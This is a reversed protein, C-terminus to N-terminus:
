QVESRKAIAKILGRFVLTHVPYLLYWYLFGSFGRPAFFATQTLMHDDIQWEMWGEGPARLESHLLLLHNPELSEIRYYDIYDGSRGIPSPSPHPLFRDIWGRLQWLWNAYPWGKRGGLSTLVRFIKEPSANVEVRCWSIFFGEHRFNTVERQLGEWVREVNTPSLDALAERTAEEYSILKVNPFVRRAEDHQVISDAALGEILAYAIPRPVPTMWGVIRAMLSVPIGPFTILGRKLGRIRAYTLMSDSYKMVHPGGIEFIRGRGNPNELAAVLYDVVNQIAIPQSKNRLWGPGIVIPFLETMFRIMEFSISGSGAIVGARFETVPVKGNRLVEGTEIRSLMHPAIHKDQPDALGGLYIIHEVSKEQAISAFNRAAATEIRTYGRGLSMNHILYYATHVGKLAASLNETETVDGEVVEVKSLWGRGALSHAQRALVRVRYRRELLRPILRSAIYGNAGTVLILENM